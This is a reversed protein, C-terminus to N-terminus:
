SWASANKNETQQYSDNAAHVATAIRNLVGNLDTASSIWNNKVNQFDGGASGTWISELNAIQSKLDDLQGEIQKVQSDIQSAVNGIAAFDVKIDTM